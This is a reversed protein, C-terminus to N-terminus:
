KVHIPPFFSLLISLWVVNNHRAAFFSYLKLHRFTSIPNVGLFLFINVQGHKWQQQFLSLNNSTDPDLLRLLRGNDLWSHQVDPFLLSTETLTHQPIPGDRGLMITHLGRRPVYHEFHMVRKIPSTMPNNTKEAVKQLINDFTAKSSSSKKSTETGTNGGARGGSRTLLDRLTSCTSKDKDEKKEKDAKNNKSRKAPPSGSEQRDMVAAEALISLPSMSDGNVDTLSSMLKNKMGKEDGPQHDDLGNLLAKDKGMANVLHGALGNRPNLAQEIKNRGCPCNCKISCM